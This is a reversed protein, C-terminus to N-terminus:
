HRTLLMRDWLTTCVGFNGSGDRHHLDHHRQLDWFPSRDDFTNHHFSYHLFTYFGYWCLLGVAFWPGLAAWAALSLLAVGFPLAAGVSYDAPRRHHAGHGFVPAVHLWRHGAYELFTGTLFGLLTFM